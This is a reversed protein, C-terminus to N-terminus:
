DTNFTLAEIPLIGNHGSPEIRGIRPTGIKQTINYLRTYSSPIRMNRKDKRAAEAETNKRCAWESTMIVEEIVRQPTVRAKLIKNNIEGADVVYGSGDDVERM